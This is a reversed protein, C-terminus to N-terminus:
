KSFQFDASQMSGDLLKLTLRRCSSAWAKDSKWVYNYRDTSADYSLHSSTGAVTEEVADTPAGSSCSIAQSAPYGSAFISLGQNGGLSFKVPIASGSKATNRIPQNDVPQYFGSFTYTREFLSFPSFSTVQGCVKNINVDLSTTVNQWDGAEFHFLAILGENDFQGEQWSFCLNVSGAYSATTAVDYYVPPDGVKFSSPLTAGSGPDTSASVTTDGASSVSDFTLLVPVPAGGGPLTVVPQVTVDNGAPIPVESSPGELVLRGFSNVQVGGNEDYWELQIHSDERSPCLSQDLIAEPLWGGVADFCEPETAYVVGYSQMPLFDITPGKAVGFFAIYAPYPQWPPQCITVSIQSSSGLTEFAGAIAAGISIDGKITGEFSTYGAGCSDLTRAPIATDYTVVIRIEDGVAFPIKNPDVIPPGDPYTAYTVNEISTVPAKIVWTVLEAHPTASYALFCLMASSVLPRNDM